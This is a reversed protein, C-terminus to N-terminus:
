QNSGEIAGAAQQAASYVREALDDLLSILELQIDNDLAPFDGLHMLSVIGTLQAVSTRLNDVIETRQRAAPSPNKASTM